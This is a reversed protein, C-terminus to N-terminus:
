PVPGGQYRQKEKLLAMLPDIAAWPRKKNSMDSM